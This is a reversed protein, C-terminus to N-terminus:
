RLEYNKQLTVLVDFFDGSTVDYCYIPVGRLHGLLRLNLDISYDGSKPDYTVKDSSLRLKM